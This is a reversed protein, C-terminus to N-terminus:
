EEPTLQQDALQNMVNEVNINPKDIKNIFVIIPVKAQKAVKISEKTQPKIGDDAAVVIVIIDTCNAGRERMNSFAEHGPTDIFTIKENQFSIQYAGIHQTIGGHETKVVNTKRIYDLLTTKGHDVHGMITVIPARKVLDKPDDKININALINSENVNKQKKFDLNYKLCVEIITDEDIISNLNFVKGKLFFYKIIESPSKKISLAFEEMRVPKTFIYTSGKLENIVFKLNKTLDIDKRQDNNKKKM